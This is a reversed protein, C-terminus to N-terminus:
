RWGGSFIYSTSSDSGSCPCKEPIKHGIAVPRWWGTWKIVPLNSLREPAVQYKRRFRSGNILCGSDRSLSHYQVPQVLGFLASFALSEPHVYAVISGSISSLQSVIQRAAFNEDYISLTRIFLALERANMWNAQMLIKIQRNQSLRWFISRLFRLKLVQILRNTLFIM